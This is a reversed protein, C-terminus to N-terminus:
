PLAETITIQSQKGNANVTVIDIVYADPTETEYYNITDGPLIEIDPNIQWSKRGDSLLRDTIVDAPYLDVSNFPSFSATTTGVIRYSRTNAGYDLRAEQQNSSVMIAPTANSVAKYVDLTGNPRLLVDEMQEPDVVVSIYCATSERLTMSLSSVSLALDELGDPAGTLVVSFETSV